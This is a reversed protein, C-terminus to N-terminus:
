PRRKCSATATANDSIVKFTAKSGNASVNVAWYTTNGNTASYAKVGNVYVSIQGRGSASVYAVPADAPCSISATVTRITAQAATVPVVVSAVLVGLGILGASLKRVM